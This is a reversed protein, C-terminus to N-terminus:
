HRGKRDRKRVDDLIRNRQRLCASPLPCCNGPGGPWGHTPPSWARCIPLSRPPLEWGSAQHCDRGRGRRWDQLM